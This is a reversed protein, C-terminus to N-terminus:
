TEHWFIYAVVVGARSRDAGLNIVSANPLRVQATALSAPSEPDWDGANKGLLFRKEAMFSEGALPSAAIFADYDAASMEVEVRVSDDLGRESNTDLLRASAPFTLGIKSGIARLRDADATASHGMDPEKRTSTPERCAISAALPGVLLLLAIRM